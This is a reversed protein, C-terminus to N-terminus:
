FASSSLFSREFEGLAIATLGVFMAVKLIRGIHGNAFNIHTCIFLYLAYFVLANYTLVVGLYIPGYIETFFPWLTFLSLILFILLAIKKAVPLGFKIPLTKLGQLQDGQIDEIDKIIERGIHFFMAFFAPIWSRHIEGIALAGFPFTASSLLGILFNGYLISNKLWFSYIILFASIFITIFFHVPSVLISFVVGIICTTAAFLIASSPKLSEKPLPRNPRNVKDINKDCWDNIANGAANIFVASFIAKTLLDIHLYNTMRFFGNEFIFLNSCTAGIIVSIGTLVCNSMRALQTFAYITKLM